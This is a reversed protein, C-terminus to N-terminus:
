SIVASSVRIHDLDCVTSAMCPSAASISICAHADIDCNNAVKGTSISVLDIRSFTIYKEQNADVGYWRDTLSNERLKKSIRPGSYPQANGPPNVSELYLLSTSFQDSPIGVSNGFHEDSAKVDDIQGSMYYVQSMVLAEDAVSSIARYIIKGEFPEISIAIPSAAM